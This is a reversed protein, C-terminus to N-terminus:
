SLRSEILAITDADITRLGLAGKYPIPEALACPNELCLHQHEDLAWPSCFSAKGIIGGAGSDPLADFAVKDVNYLRAARDVNKQFCDDSSHVDVLDVVGIIHGESREMRFKRAPWSLGDHFRADIHARMLAGVCPTDDWTKAAHVAVPGRYAGAINRVRNEVDKQGHVIAWAWPQRVTLIRM